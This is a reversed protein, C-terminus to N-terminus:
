SREDETGREATRKTTSFNVSRSSSTSPKGGYGSSGSSNSGSHTSKSSHSRRSQSNSCSNSYASDSIKANNESDDLNDM